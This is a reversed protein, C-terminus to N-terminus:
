YYSEFEIRGTVGQARLERMRKFEDRYHKAIDGKGKTKRYMRGLEIDQSREYLIDYLGDGLVKRARRETGGYHSHCGYCLCEGNDRDLRVSWNRRGIHHSCDLGQGKGEAASQPYHKKCSQCTWNDRERVCLSFANDAPTRKVGGM